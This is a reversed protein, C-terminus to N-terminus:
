KSGSSILYIGLPLAVTFIASGIMLPDKWFNVNTSAKILKKTSPMRKPQMVAKRKEQEREVTLPVPSSTNALLEMIENFSSSKVDNGDVTSLVDGTRIGAIFAASYDLSEDIICYVGSAENEEREELIIGMPKSVTAKETTRSSTSALSSKLPSPVPIISSRYRNVMGPASNPLFGNIGTIYCAIGVLALSIQRNFRSGIM